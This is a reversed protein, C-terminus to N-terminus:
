ITLVVETLWGSGQPIATGVVLLEHGAWLMRDNTELAKGLLAGPDDDTTVEFTTRTRPRLEGRASEAVLTPMGKRVVLATMTVADPYTPVPDGHDGRTYVAKSFTVTDSPGGPAGTDAIVAAAGAAGSIGPVSSVIKFVPSGSWVSATPM